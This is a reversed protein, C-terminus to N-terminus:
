LEEIFVIGPIKTLEELLEIHSTRRQARLTALYARVGQETHADHERQLEHLELNRLRLERLFDGVSFDTAMEVYVEITRANRQLKNDMRHLLTMVGFIAAGGLAAGFYFGVGLALGVGAAAWLGAATTLGKIQSRRTVIITGAGLFGIGSVVQAGMRVPDGTGTSQYIFQNTLMILCSGVCVLMYTRMGAPRNKLGRDLGLLGGIFIACLIRLAAGAYTLPLMEM